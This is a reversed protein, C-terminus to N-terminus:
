IFKGLRHGAIFAVVGALISIAIYFIARLSEGGKALHSTELIFTSFTTFAGCFGVALLMKMNDDLLFNGENLTSLAGIVFCGLANVVLTGYPFGHGVNEHVVASLAYRSVTGAAGGLILYFLKLDNCRQQFPTKM